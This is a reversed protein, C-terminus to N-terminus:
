GDLTRLKFSLSAAQLESLSINLEFHMQLLFQVFYTRCVVVIRVYKYRFM